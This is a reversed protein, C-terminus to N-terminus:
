SSPHVAAVLSYFNQFWMFWEGFWGFSTSTTNEM